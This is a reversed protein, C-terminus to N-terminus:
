RWHRDRRLAEYSAPASDAVTSFSSLLVLGSVSLAGTMLPRTAESLTVRPDFNSGIDPTLAHSSTSPSRVSLIVTSPETSVELSPSYVSTYETVLLLALGGGERARYGHAFGRDLWSGVLLAISHLARISTGGDGTECQGRHSKGDCGHERERGGASLLVSRM